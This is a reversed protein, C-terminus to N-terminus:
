NKESVDVSADKVLINIHVLVNQHANMISMRNTTKYTYKRLSIFSQRVQEDYGSGKRSDDKGNMNRGVM